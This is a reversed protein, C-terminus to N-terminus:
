KRDLEFHEVSDGLKVVGQWCKTSRRRKNWVNTCRDALAARLSRWQTIRQRFRPMFWVISEIRCVLDFFESVAGIVVRQFKVRDDFEVWFDRLLNNSSILWLSAIRYHLWKSHAPVLNLQVLQLQLHKSMGAPHINNLIWWFFPTTSVKSSTPSCSEQCRQCGKNKKINEIWM